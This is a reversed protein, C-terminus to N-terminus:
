LQQKRRRWRRRRQQEVMQEAVYKCTLFQSTLTVALTKNFDDLTCEFINKNDSIAVNNVLIDVRGYAGLTTAIMNKVSEEESVDAFVYIAAGEFHKNINEATRKGREADFDVVVVKAGEEAFLFATEEGINRGAGTVIAVKERLRM